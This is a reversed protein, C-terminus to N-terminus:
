VGSRLHFGSVENAGFSRLLPGTAEMADMSRWIIRQRISSAKSIASTIKGGSAVCVARAMSLEAMPKRSVLRAGPPEPWRM